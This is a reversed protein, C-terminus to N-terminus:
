SAKEYDFLYSNYTIGIGYNVMSKTNKLIKILTSLFILNKKVDSEKSNEDYIPIDSIQYAGVKDDICAHIESSISDKKKYGTEISDVCKCAKGSLEM